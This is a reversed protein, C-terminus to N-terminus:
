AQRGTLDRLITHKGARSRKSYGSRLRWNACRSAAKTKDPCIIHAAYHELVTLRYCAMPLPHSVIIHLCLAKCEDPWEEYMLNITTFLKGENVSLTRKARTEVVKAAIAISADRQLEPNIRESLVQFGASSQRQLVNDVM